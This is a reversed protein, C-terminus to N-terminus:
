EYKLTQAPNVRAARVTQYAVSIFAIGVVGIGSFVFTIPNIEIHYPFESLWRDMIVWALPWAIVNSILVLYIFGRSLLLVVGGISSGLVKRIGIEKTRQTTMFSSLGFLGMCAIFIALLTFLSFIQGFQRDNEYQRNFFQDLVFYDIPNGPFISNWPEQLASLVNMYNTHEVKVSIFNANGPTFRFVLPVVAEKLSMQHYNELIGVVELTDGQIVREGIAATPEDFDLAEAMARNLM